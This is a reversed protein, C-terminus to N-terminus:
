WNRRWSPSHQLLDVYVDLKSPSGTDSELRWETISNLNSDFYCLALCGGLSSATNYAERLMTLDGGHNTRDYDAAGQSIAFEGIAWQVGKAQVFATIPTWYEPGYYWWQGNRSTGYVNYADFGCFDGSNFAGPWLTALAQDGYTTPDQIPGYINNYSSMIPGCRLNDYPKSFQYLRDHMLVFDSLPQEDGEPEHHFTLMVPGPLAGLQACLDQAWADCSGAAAQTWTQSSPLKFSVWPVRGATIDSACQTIASSVEDGDWYTRHAGIPRGAPTEIPSCDTLTNFAAGLFPAPEYPRVDSREARKWKNSAADLWRVEQAM